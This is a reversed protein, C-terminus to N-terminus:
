TPRRPHTPDGGVSFGNAGRAGGPVDLLGRLVERLDDEGVRFHHRRGVIMADLTVAQVHCGYCDHQRQWAITDAALFDLGRQAAGRARPDVEARSVPGGIGVDTCSELEAVLPGSPAARGQAAGCGLAVLCVAGVAVGLETRM